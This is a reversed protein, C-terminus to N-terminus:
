QRYQVTFKRLLVHDTYGDIQAASRQLSPRTYIYMRRRRRYRNSRALTMMDSADCNFQMSRPRPAGIYTCPVTNVVSQSLSPSLPAAIDEDCLNYYPPTMYVTAPSPQNMTQITKNRDSQM